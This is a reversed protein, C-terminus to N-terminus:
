VALAQAPIEIVYREEVGANKRVESRTSVLAREGDADLVILYLDPRSEIVDRFEVQTFVIAFRGDANTRCEGLFDDSLFDEDYARVVLDLLPRGSGAERVVGAVRYRFSV